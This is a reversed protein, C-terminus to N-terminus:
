RITFQAIKFHNMDDRLGAHGSPQICYDIIM